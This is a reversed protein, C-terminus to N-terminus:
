HPFQAHLHADIRHAVNQLLEPRVQEVFQALFRLVLGDGTLSIVWILAMQILGGSLELAGSALEPQPAVPKASFVILTFLAITELDAADNGAGGDKWRSPRRSWCCMPRRRRGFMRSLM